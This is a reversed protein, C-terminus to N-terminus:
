IRKKKRAQRIAHRYGIMFGAELGLACAKYMSGGSRLMLQEIDSPYFRGANTKWGSAMGRYDRLCRDIDRNM